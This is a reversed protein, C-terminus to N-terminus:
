RAAIVAQIAATSVGVVGVMAILALLGSAGHRSSAPAVASGIDVTPDPSPQGFRDDNAGVVSRDNPSTSANPAVASASGTKQPKLSAASRKSPKGSKAPDGAGSGSTDSGPGGSGGSGGAVAAPPATPKSGPEAVNVIMSQHTGLDLACDPLMSVSIQAPGQTFTVPALSRDPLSKKSNGVWLTASKGTQNLFNVVTGAAVQMRTLSPASPCSLTGQKLVPKGTFTVTPAGANAGVSALLPAALFAGVMVVAASRRYWLTM